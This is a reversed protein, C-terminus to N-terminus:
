PNVPFNVGWYISISDFFKITMLIKGFAWIENLYQCFKIGSKVIYITIALPKRSKVLYSVTLYSVSTRICKFQFSTWHTLNPPKHSRLGCIVQLYSTDDSRSEQYVNRGRSHSLIGYRLLGDTRRNTERTIQRKTEQIVHACFQQIIM